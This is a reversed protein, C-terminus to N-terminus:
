KHEKELQPLEKKKRTQHSYKDPIKIKDLSKGTYM